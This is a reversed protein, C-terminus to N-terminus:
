NCEEVFGKKGNPAAENGALLKFVSAMIKDKIKLEGGGEGM